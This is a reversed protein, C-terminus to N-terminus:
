KKDLLEDQKLLNKIIFYLFTMIILFTLTANVISGIDFTVGRVSFSLQTADGPFILRIAPTFIGKVFADVVQKSADATIVGIALGIVSYRKLFELLGQSFTKTKGRLKNITASM